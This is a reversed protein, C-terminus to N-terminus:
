HDHDHDHDHHHDHHHDHEVALTEDAFIRDRSDAVLASELLPTMANRCYTSPYSWRDRREGVWEFHMGDPRLFNGGWAFNHRRFIRVVDCNMKPVCGQCDTVTNIDLAMAWSHRSLFGFEASTRNFRANHCGGYTNANAVDIFRGLGAAAVEALAARLDAVVAVHCRARIPIQSNLLERGPPLHASTWASDQSVTGDANVRYAFEGLLAKTQVTSLTSDPNPPDWSRVARTERRTTIGNRWLALDLATRSSFGWMVARTARTVGLRDAAADSMVVEAGGVQEAPAVLAVTLSRVTGDDAVVDIVDGARAGRLAATPEGMVVSTPGLAGAVSPGMVGRVAYVPMATVVMPFRFGAPPQQVIQTGRRLAVIGVTAGRSPAWSGNTERAASAVATALSSQLEGVNFVSVVDGALAPEIVREAPRSVIAAEDIRDAGSANVVVVAAVVLVAAGVVFAAIRSM